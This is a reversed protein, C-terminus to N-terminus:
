SMKVLWYTQYIFDLTCFHIQFEKLYFHLIHLSIYHRVIDYPVVFLCYDDLLM